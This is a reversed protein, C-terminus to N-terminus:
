GSSVKMAVSGLLAVVGVALAAWGVEGWAFRTSSLFNLFSSVFASQLVTVSKGHSIVQITPCRAGEPGSCFFQSTGIARLIHTTPVAYYLGQWFPPMLSRNIFLGAMLFSISITLGGTIQAIALTPILAVWLVGM